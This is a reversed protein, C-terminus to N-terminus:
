GPNTAPQVARQANKGRPTAPPPSIQGQEAVKEKHHKVAKVAVTTAVVAGTGIALFPVAAHLTTLSLLGHHHFAKAINNWQGTFWKAVGGHVVGKAPLPHGSGELGVLKTHTIVTTKMKFAAAISHGVGEVWHIGEAWLRSITSFIGGAAKPAYAALNKALGAGNTIFLM